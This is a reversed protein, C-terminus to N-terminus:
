ARASEDGNRGPLGAAEAMAKRARDRVSRDEDDAGADHAGSRGPRPAPRGGTRKEVRRSAGAAARAGLERAVSSPRAALPLSSPRGLRLRDGRPDRRARSASAAPSRAEDDLRDDLVGVGLPREKAVELRDDALPTRADFVDDIEIVASALPSFRGPASTPMCKKLGTGSIFSTSTTEPRCVSAADGVAIKSSLRRQPLVGTCAREVGPKMTLRM